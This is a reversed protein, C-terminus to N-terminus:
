VSQYACARCGAVLRWTATTSSSSRGSRSRPRMGSTWRLIASAKGSCLRSARPILTLVDSCDKLCDAYNKVKFPVDRPQIQM